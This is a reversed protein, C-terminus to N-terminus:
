EAEREPKNSPVILTECWWHERLASFNAVLVNIRKKRRKIVKKKKSPTLTLTDLFKATFEWRTKHNKARRCRVNIEMSPYISVQPSQSHSTFARTKGSLNRSEQQVYSSRPNPRKRAM